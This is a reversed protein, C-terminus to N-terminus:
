YQVVLIPHCIFRCPLGVALALITPTSSSGILITHKYQVSDAEENSLPFSSPSMQFGQTRKPIESSFIVAWKSCGPGGFQVHGVRQKPGLPQSHVEWLVYDWLSCIKQSIYIRFKSRLTHQFFTSSGCFLSTSPTHQLVLFHYNLYLRSKGKFYMGRLLDLTEVDWDGGSVVVVCGM